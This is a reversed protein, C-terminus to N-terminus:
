TRPRAWPPLDPASNRRLTLAKAVFGPHPFYTRHYASVTVKSALVQELLPKVNRYRYPWYQDVVYIGAVLLALVPLGLGLGWLLRKRHRRM